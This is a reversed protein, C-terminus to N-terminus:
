ARMGKRINHRIYRYRPDRVAAVSSLARHHRRFWDSVLQAQQEVGYEGYPGGIRYAYPDIGVLEAIRSTLVGVLLAPDDGAHHLQWAHVLEHVFMEGYKMGAEAVGHTRPDAFSAPGMNVAITGDRRPFTFARGWAGISDTLVLRERPPLTTAFVRRAWEYEELTLTRRREGVFVVREVLGAAVRASSRAAALADAVVGDGSLVSGGVFILSLLSM